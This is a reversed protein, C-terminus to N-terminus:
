PTKTSACSLPTTWPPRRGCRSDPPCSEGLFAGRELMAVVAEQGQPSVVTLKVTGAQVYFVAEAAEGQSFIAHNRPATLVTAGEVSDVTWRGKHSVSRREGHASRERRSTATKDAAHMRGQVSRDRKNRRITTSTPMVAGERSSTLQDEQNWGFV